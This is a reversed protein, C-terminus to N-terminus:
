CNFFWVCPEFFESFIEDAICVVTFTRVAAVNLLTDNSANTGSTVYAVRDESVDTVICWIVRRWM